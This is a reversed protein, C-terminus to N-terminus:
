LKMAHSLFIFHVQKGDSKKNGSSLNSSQRSRPRGSGNPSASRQPPIKPLAPTSNSKPLGNTVPGVKVNAAKQISGKRLGSTNRGTNWKLTDWLIYASMNM